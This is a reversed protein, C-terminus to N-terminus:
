ALEPVGRELRADRLAHEFADHNAFSVPHIYGEFEPFFLKHASMGIPQVRLGKLRMAADRILLGPVVHFQVRDDGRVVRAFAELFSLSPIRVRLSDEAVWNTQIRNGLFEEIYNTFPEVIFSLSPDRRRLGDFWMEEESFYRRPVIIELVRQSMPGMKGSGQLNELARTMGSVDPVQANGPQAELYVSTDLERLTVGPIRGAYDMFQFFWLQDAAALDVRKALLEERSGELYDPHMMTEEISRLLP